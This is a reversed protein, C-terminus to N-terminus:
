TLQRTLRAAEARMLLEVEWGECRIRRDLYALFRVVAFYGVVVWAALPLCLCCPPVAGPRFFFVETFKVPTFLPWVRSRVAFATPAEPTM